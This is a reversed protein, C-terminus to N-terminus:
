ARRSDCARPPTHVHRVCRGTGAAAARHKPPMRTHRGATWFTQVCALAHALTMALSHSLCPRLLLDGRAPHRAHAHPRRPLECCALEIPAQVSPETIRGHLTPELSHAASASLSTPRGVALDSTHRRRHLPSTRFLRSTRDHLPPPPPRELAARMRPPAARGVSFADRMSSTPRGAHGNASSKAKTPRKMRVARRPLPASAAPAAEPLKWPSKAVDGGARQVERVLDHAIAELSSHQVRTKAKKAFGHVHVVLRADMHGILKQAVAPQTQM